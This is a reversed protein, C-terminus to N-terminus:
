THDVASERIARELRKNRADANAANVVSIAWVAAPIWGILTVQLVLALIAQLPRGKLLIALFPLVIAIGIM